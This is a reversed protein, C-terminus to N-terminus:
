VRGPRLNLQVGEFPGRLSASDRLIEGAGRRGRHADVRTGLLRRRLQRRVELRAGRADQEGGLGGSAPFQQEIQKASAANLGLNEVIKRIKEGARQIKPNGYRPGHRAQPQVRGGQFYEGLRLQEPIAGPLLAPAAAGLAIRRLYEFFQRVEADTRRHHVFGVPDAAVGSQLGHVDGSVGALKEHEFIGVAVFQINGHLRQVEHGAVGSRRGFGRREVFEAALL